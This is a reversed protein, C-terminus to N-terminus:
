AWTTVLVSGVPAPLRASVTSGAPSPAIMVKSRPLAVGVIRRGTSAGTVALASRVMSPRPAGPQLEARSSSRVMQDDVGAGAHVPELHKQDVDVVAQARDRHVPDEGDLGRRVGGDARLDAVDTRHVALDALEHLLARGSEQEGDPGGVGAAGGHHLPGELTEVVRQLPFMLLPPVSTKLMAAPSRVKRSTILSRSAFLAPVTSFVPM